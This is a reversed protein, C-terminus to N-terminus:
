VKPIIIAEREDGVAETRGVEHLYATFAAYVADLEDRTLIRHAPHGSIGLSLLKKQAAFDDVAYVGLVKASGAAFVEIPTVGAENLRCALAAGREALMRMGSLTPPLAGLHKIEGDCRRVSGSFTLPADIAAFSVDRSSLLSVIREDTKALETEVVKDGDEVTLFAVGTPNDPSGALDIGAVTM